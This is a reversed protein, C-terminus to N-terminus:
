QAPVMAMSTIIGKSDMAILIVMAGNAFKAQYIDTGNPAVRQFTLSQLAGLQSIAGAAQDAQAKAAEALDPGMKSYDAPQGKEVRSIWDNIAAQSGPLPTNAQVRAAVKANFQVAAAADMRHLTLDPGATHLILATAPGTGNTVFDVNADVGKMVFHTATQPNIDTPPNGTFQTALQTGSLTVTMVGQIDSEGLRYSGVYRQLTAAAVSFQPTPASSAAAPASGQAAAVEFVPLLCLLATAPLTWWRAFRAAM